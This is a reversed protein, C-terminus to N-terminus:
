YLMIQSIRYNVTNQKINMAKNHSDFFIIVIAADYVIHDVITLLIVKQM